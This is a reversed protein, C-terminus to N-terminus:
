RICLFLFLSATLSLLCIFMAWIFSCVLVGSFSNFISFLLRNYASNLVSTILIILSSLSSRLLMFFSGTLFLPYILQFLSCNLPFWCYLPHLWSDFCYNPIYLLSFCGILVAFLFFLKFIHTYHVSSRPCILHLLMQIVNRQRKM